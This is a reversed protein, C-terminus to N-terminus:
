EPSPRTRAQLWTAHDRLGFRVGLRIVWFLAFAVLGVALALILFYVLIGWSSFM